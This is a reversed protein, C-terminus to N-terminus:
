EFAISFDRYSTATYRIKLSLTRGVSSAGDSTTVRAKAVSLLKLAALDFSQDDPSVANVACDKLHGGKGITCTASVEGSVGLRSAREPYYLDYQGMRNRFNVDRVTLAPLDATPVRATPTAAQLMLAFALM